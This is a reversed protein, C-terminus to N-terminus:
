IKDQNFGEIIMVEPEKEYLKGNDDVGYAVRLGKQIKTLGSMLMDVNYATARAQGKSVDGQVLEQGYQALISQIIDAGKNYLDICLTNVYLKDKEAIRAADDIAKEQISRRKATVGEKSMRKVIMNKNFAVDPFSALIYDLEENRMWMMRVKDWDSAKPKRKETTKSQAM